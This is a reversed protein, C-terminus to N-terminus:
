PKRRCPACLGTTSRTSAGCVCRRRPRACDRALGHRDRPKARASEDLRSLYLADVVIRLAHGHPTRVIETRM